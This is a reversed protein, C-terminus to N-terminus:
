FPVEDDFNEEEEIDAYKAAFKDEAITVYMNRVYAKIGSRGSVSYNHPSIEVDVNEIDAWDLINITKEDLTKKTKGCILVIKPPFKDFRVSAKIYPRPDEDEDRPKLYKVNWGADALNDGDAPNLLICFNRNGEPNFKTEKGSFNRFILEANEIFLNAM